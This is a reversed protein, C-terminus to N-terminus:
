TILPVANGGTGCGLELAVFPSAKDWSDIAAKVGAEFMSGPGGFTKAVVM